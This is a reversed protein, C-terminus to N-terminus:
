LRCDIPSPTLAPYCPLLAARRPHAAHISPICILTLPIRKAGTIPATASRRAAEVGNMDIRASMELRLLVDACGQTERRECMRHSLLRSILRGDGPAARRTRTSSRVPRVTSACCAIAMPDSRTSMLGIARDPKIWRTNSASCLCRCRCRPPRHCPLVSLAACVAPHSWPPHDDDTSEHADTPHIWRATIVSQVKTDNCQVAVAVATHSGEAAHQDDTNQDRAATHDECGMWLSRRRPWNM